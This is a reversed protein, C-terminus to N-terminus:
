EADGSKGADKLELCRQRVAAIADPLQDAPVPRSFLYGQFEDCGLDRLYQMQAVTEVGEVVVRMGSLRALDVMSKAIASNLPDEPVNMVFSRDIKLTDAPFNQLYSLNSFGTGFDDLAVTIGMEKLSALNHNASAIDALLLSETIEIEVSDGQIGARRLFESVRPVFFPRGFHIPAINVAVKFGNWGADRWKRMQACAAGIVWEGVAVTLGHREVAPIFQNPPIRGHIPHHWRILAEVSEVRGESLSVRPQYELLLQEDRIARPVHDSLEQVRRWESAWEEDYFQIPETGETRCRQLALTARLLVENPAIPRTANWVIGIRGALRRSSRGSSPLRTGLDRLIEQAICGVAVRDDVDELVVAFEHIRYACVFFPRHGTSRGFFRDLTERIRREVAAHWNEETESPASSAVVSAGEIGILLLAFPETGTRAVTQIVTNLQRRSFVPKGGPGHVGGDAARVDHIQAASATAPTRNEDSMARTLNQLRTRVTQVLVERDVPKSLFDDAGLRKGALLNDRDGNGSLLIFPTPDNAKLERWTKLLEFGSMGPMRIDCIVLDPHHAELAELGSPGDSAEVTDFGAQRLLDVVTERVLDEDDICLITNSM